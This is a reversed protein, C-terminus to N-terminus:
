KLPLSFGLVNLARLQNTAPRELMRPRIVLPPRRSIVIAKTTTNHTLDIQRAGLDLPNNIQHEDSHM